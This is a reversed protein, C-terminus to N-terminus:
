RPSCIPKPKNHKGGSNSHGHHEPEYDNYIIGMIGLALAGGLILVSIINIAEDEEEPINASGNNYLNHRLIEENRTSNNGCGCLFVILYLIFINKM